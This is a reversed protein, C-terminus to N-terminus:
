KSPPTHAYVDKSTEYAHNELALAKTRIEALDASSLQEASVLELTEKTKEGDGRWGVRVNGINPAWYKLQMADPESSSTEAVVLVNEYCGAPVCTQVGMQDVQGRDTWNVEPGWGQSYSPMGIRPQALMMIGAHAGKLGHIWAPAEVLKGDEYVEPYEGMRWVNGQKDQAFFALEAEALVGGSYDLDYSVLSQVGGIVKTLDTIHIVVKHALLTGDDEVTNGEYTYRMGPKMPMWDNDVRTPDTFTMPDFDEFLKVPAETTATPQSPRPTASPRLTAAAQPTPAIQAAPAACGSLTMVLLSAATALRCRIQSM